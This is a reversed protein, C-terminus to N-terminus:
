GRLAPYIKLLDTRTNSSVCILADSSFYSHRRQLVNIRAGCHAGALGLEYIMDHVTAVNRVRTGQGVRFHSSHFVQASTLVPACRLLKHGARRDVHFETGHRSVRSTVETWYESAGGFRQLRYIIDDFEIRIGM